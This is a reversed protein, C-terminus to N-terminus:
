YVKMGQYSDTQNMIITSQFPYVMTDNIRGEYYDVHSKWAWLGSKSDASLAQTQIFAQLFPLRASACIFVAVFVFISRM